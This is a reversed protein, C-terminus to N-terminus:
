RRRARMIGMLGLGLKVLGTSLPWPGTLTGDGEFNAFWFFPDDEDEGTDLAISVPTNRVTFRPLLFSM